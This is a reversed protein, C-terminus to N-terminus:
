EWATAATANSQHPPALSLIRGLYNASYRDMEMVSEPDIWYERIRNDGTKPGTRRRKWNLKIGIGKLLDSLMQLPNEAIDKRVIIDIEALHNKTRTAPAEVGVCKSADLIVPAHDIATGGTGDKIEIFTTPCCALPPPALISPRVSQLVSESTSSVALKLGFWRLVSLSAKAKALIHSMKATPFEPGLEKGDLMELVDQRGLSIAKLHAYARAKDRLRGDEDAEVLAPNVWGYFDLIYAREISFAQEKSDPVRIGRAEEISMSKASAVNSAHETRVAKGAAGRLKKVERKQDLNVSESEDVACWPFRLEMTALRAEIASRIYGFAGGHRREDAVINCYLDFHDQNAVELTARGDTVTLGGLAYERCKGHKGAFRRTAEEFDLLRQRIQVPDCTREVGTPKAWIRIVKEKPSRVRHALQFVGRSDLIGNAFVYIRDFHDPIDISVGTGLTPTYVIADAGLLAENINAITGEMEPATDRNFLLVRADPREEQLMRHIAASEVRGDVGIALRDGGRWDNLALASLTDKNSTLQYHWDNTIEVSRFEEDYQDHSTWGKAKRIFDVVRVDLDADLCIVLQAYRVLDRLRLFMLLSDPGSMTGANLHQLVQAAEDLVLIGIKHPLQCEGDPSCDTM